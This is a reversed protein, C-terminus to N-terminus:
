KIYQIYKEKEKHMPKARKFEKELKEQYMKM